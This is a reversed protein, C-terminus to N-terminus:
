QCVGVYSFKRGSNNSFEDTRLKFLPAIRIQQTEQILTGRLPLNKKVRRVRFPSNFDSRSATAGKLSPLLIVRTLYYIQQVLIKEAFTLDFEKKLFLRQEWSRRIHVHFAKKASGDHSAPETTASKHPSSLCRISEVRWAPQRWKCPMIIDAQRKKLLRQQFFVVNFLLSRLIHWTVSCNEQNCWEGLCWCLITWTRWCDLFGLFM